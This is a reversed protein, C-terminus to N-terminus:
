YAVLFYQNWFDLNMCLNDEKNQCSTDAEKLKTHFSVQNAGLGHVTLLSLEFLFM